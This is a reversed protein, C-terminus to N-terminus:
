PYAQLDEVMSYGGTGYLRLLRVPTTRLHPVIMALEHLISNPDTLDAIIFCSM